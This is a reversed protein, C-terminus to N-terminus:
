SSKFNCRQTDGTSGSTNIICFPDTDIQENMRLMIRDHVEQYFVESIDIEDLYLIPLSVGSLMTRYKSNTLILKPKILSLINNLM